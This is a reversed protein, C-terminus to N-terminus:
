ATKLSSFPLDLTQKGDSVIEKTLFISALSISEFKKNVENQM